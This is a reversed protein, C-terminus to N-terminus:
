RYSVHSQVVNDPNSDRVGLWLKEPGSACELMSPRLSNAPNVETRIGFLTDLDVAVAGLPVIVGKLESVSREVALPTRRESM